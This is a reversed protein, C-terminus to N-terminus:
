IKKLQALLDDLAQNYAIEERDLKAPNEIDPKLKMGEVEEVVSERIKEAFSTLFSKASKVSVYNMGCHSCTYANGDWTPNCEFQECKKGTPISLDVFEKLGEELTQTKPM